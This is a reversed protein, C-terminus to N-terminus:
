NATINKLIESFAKQTDNTLNPDNNTIYLEQQMQIDSAIPLPKLPLNSKQAHFSPLWGYGQQNAILEMMMSLSDVYWECCHHCGDSIKPLILANHIIQRHHHLLPLDIPADNSLQHLEYDPHAYPYCELTLLKESDVRVKNRTIACDIKRNQISEQFVDTRSNILVVHTTPFKSEFFNLSKSLLEIPLLEDVLLIFQHHNGHKFHNIANELQSLQSVIHQSRKLILKGADTLEAKKNSFEFLKIGMLEQMKNINYSITSQSKFLAEAASSFSGTEVITQFIIWQDLTIKPLSAVKKIKKM